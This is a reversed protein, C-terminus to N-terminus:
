YVPKGFGAKNLGRGIDNVHRSFVDAEKHNKEGEMQDNFGMDFFSFVRIQRITKGDYLAPHFKPYNLFAGTVVKNMNDTLPYNFKVADIKGEENISMTVQLEMKSLTDKYYKLSKNIYSQLDVMPQADTLHTITKILKDNRFVETYIPREFSIQYSNWDGEKKDNLYSGEGSVSGTAINFKQFLGNLKGDEYTCIYDKIGRRAYELWKGTKLGNVFFGTSKVYNNTDLHVHYKKMNDTLKLKYYYYFKGNPTTLQPDKYYGQMLLTDRMDFNKVLYASDSVKEILIYSVAKQPNDSFTGTSTVYAKSVQSFGKITFLLIIPVLWYFKM